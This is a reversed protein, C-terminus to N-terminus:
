FTHPLVPFHVFPLDQLLQSVNELPLNPQDAHPTFCLAHVKATVGFPFRDGWKFLDSQVLM